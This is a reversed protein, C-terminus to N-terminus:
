IKLAIHLYLYALAYARRHALTHLVSSLRLFIMRTKSIIDTKPSASVLNALIALCPSAPM